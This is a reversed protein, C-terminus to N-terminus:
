DSSTSAQHIAVLAAEFQAPDLEEALAAKGTDIESLRNLRALTLLYVLRPAPAHLSGANAQREALQAVGELTAAAQWWAEALPRTWTWARELETRAVVEGRLSDVYANPPFEQIETFHDEWLDLRASKVTRHFRLPLVLRTPVYALSVGWNFSYRAGKWPLLKLVHSIEGDLPRVYLGRGLSVFDPLDSAVIEHTISHIRSPNVIEDASM